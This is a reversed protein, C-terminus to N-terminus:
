LATLRPSRRPASSSPRGPIASARTALGSTTAPPGRSTARRGRGGEPEDALGVVLHDRHEHAAGRRRGRADQPPGGQVLTRRLARRAREAGARPPVLVPDRDRGQGHQGRVAQPAEHRRGVQGAHLGEGGADGLRNVTLTSWTYAEYVLEAHTSLERWYARYRTKELPIRPMMLIVRVGQNDLARALALVNDRFRRQASTAPEAIQVAQMENLALWPEDCTTMERALAVLEPVRALVQSRPKPNNVTGVLGLLRMYWGATDAGRSQYSDRWKENQVGLITGPRALVREVPTNYVAFAAYDVWVAGPGTPCAASATAPAIAAVLLTLLILRSRRMSRTISGSHRM